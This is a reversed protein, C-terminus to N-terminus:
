VVEKKLNKNMIVILVIFSFISIMQKNVAITLTDIACFLLLSIKMGAPAFPLSPNM